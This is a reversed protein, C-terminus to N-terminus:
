VRKEKHIQKNIFNAIFEFGIYVPVSGGIVALLLWWNDKTILGYNIEFFGEGNLFLHHDIVFVIVCIIALAIITGVSRKKAKELSSADKDSFLYSVWIFSLVLAVGTVAAWTVISAISDIINKAQAKAETIEPTDVALLFNNVALLLSNLMNM